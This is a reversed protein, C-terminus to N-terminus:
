LFGPHRRRFSEVTQPSWQDIPESFWGTSMRSAHAATSTISGKGPRVVDVPGLALLRLYLESPVVDFPKRGDDFVHGKGDLGGARTLAWDIAQSCIAELPVGDADVRQVYRDLRPAPIDIRHAALRPYAAFGYGVKREWMLRVAARAGDATANSPTGVLGRAAAAVEGANDALYRPRIFVYDASWQDDRLPVIEFGKPMAQGIMAPSSATQREMVM